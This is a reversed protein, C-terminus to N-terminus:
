LPHPSITFGKSKLLKLLGFNGYLHAAGLCVMVSANSMIGDLRSAMITNRQNIMLKRHKGLSKRSNRYLSQIDQNLYYGMLKKFSSKLRSPNATIKKLDKKGDGTDLTTMIQFQENVTEIGYVPIGNNKARNWLEQDMSFTMRKEIMVRSLYQTLMYPPIHDMSELDMSFVQKLIRRVQKYRKVSLVKKYSWETSQDSLCYSMSEMQDLDVEGYYAQILDFKLQIQEIFPLLTSDNVHMTGILFSTHGGKDIQWCLSKTNM